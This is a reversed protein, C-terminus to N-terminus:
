TFVIRWSSKRRSTYSELSSSGKRDQLVKYSRCAWGGIRRSLMQREELLRGRIQLPRAEQHLSGVQQALRDLADAVHEGRRHSVGRSVHDIVRQPLRRSAARSVSACAPPCDLEGAGMSSSRSSCSRQPRSLCLMAAPSVPAHGAAEAEGASAKSSGIVVVMMIRSM